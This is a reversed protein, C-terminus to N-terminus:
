TGGDPKSTLMSEFKAREFKLNIAGAFKKIELVGDKHFAFDHAEVGKAFPLAVSGADPSSSEVLLASTWLGAGCGFASTTESFELRCTRLLAVDTAAMDPSPQVQWQGILKSTAAFVFPSAPLRCKAFDALSASASFCNKVDVPLAKGVCTAGTLQRELRFKAGFLEPPVEGSSLAHLKAALAACDEVSARPAVIWAAAEPGVFVALNAAPPPANALLADIIKLTASQDERRTESFERVAKSEEPRLEEDAVLRVVQGHREVKMGHLARLFPDLVSRMLADRVFTSPERYIKILRPENNELQSQWDRVLDILDKEISAAAEEDRALLV